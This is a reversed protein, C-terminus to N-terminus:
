HHYNWGYYNIGAHNFGAYAIVGDSNVYFSVVSRVKEFNFFYVLHASGDMGQAWLDPPGLLDLLQNGAIKQSGCATVLGLMVAAHKEERTPGDKAQLYEDYASRIVRRAWAQTWQSRAAEVTSDGSRGVDAENQAAPHPPPPPPKNSCGFTLLLVSFCLCCPFRFVSNM